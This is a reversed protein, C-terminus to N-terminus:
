CIYMKQLEKKYMKDINNVIDTKTPNFSLLRMLNDNNSMSKKNKFSKEVGNFAFKVKEYDNTPLKTKKCAAFLFLSTLLMIFSLLFTRIKKM